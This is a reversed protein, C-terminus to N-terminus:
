SFHTERRKIYWLNQEQESLFYILHIRYKGVFYTTNEPINALSFNFHHLVLLPGILALKDSHLLYFLPIIMAPYKEQFFVAM